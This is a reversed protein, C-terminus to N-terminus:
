QPHSTAPNDKLTMKFGVGHINEIKVMDEKVLYKRLRSIFVDLSRGIFYDDTGWLSKLIDERKVVNNKRQLLFLLLEAEKQTLPQQEEGNSLLLNEYQFSYSGIALPTPSPTAVLTRKLFIKIKLDLELFSFPKTLYDDAGLQLGNLKDELLSKVTLFLIPVQSNISRIHTALAFGDMSPLMIDLICLQFTQQQFVEWAERGDACHVVQYGSKEMNHRTIFALNEDDEVYLLKNPASM